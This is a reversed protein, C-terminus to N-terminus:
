PGWKKNKNKATLDLISFNSILTSYVNPSLPLSLSFSSPSLEHDRCCKLWAYWFFQVAPINSTWISRVRAYYHFQLLHANHRLTRHPVVLFSMQVISWFSDSTFYNVEEACLLFPASIDYRGMARIVALIMTISCNYLCNLLPEALKLTIAIHASRWHTSLCNDNSIPDKVEIYTYSTGGM